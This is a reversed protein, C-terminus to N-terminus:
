LFLSSIQIMLFIIKFFIFIVFFNFVFFVFFIKFRKASGKKLNLYKGLGFYKERNLIQLLEEDDEDDESSSYYSNNHNDNNNDNNNNNNKKNNKNDDSDYYKKFNNYFFLFNQCIKFNVFVVLLLSNITHSLIITSQNSLKFNNFNPNIVSIILFNLSLSLIDLLIFLLFDFFNEFVKVLSKLTFTELVPTNIQNNETYYNVDKYDKTRQKIM